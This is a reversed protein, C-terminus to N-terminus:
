YNCHLGIRQIIGTELWDLDIMQENTCIKITHGLQFCKFCLAQGIIPCHGYQHGVQQCYKCYVASSSLPPISIQHQQVSSKAQNTVTSQHSIIHHRLFLLLSRLSHNFKSSNFLSQKTEPLKPFALKFVLSQFLETTPDTCLSILPFILKIAKAMVITLQKVLNTVEEDNPYSIPIIQNFM